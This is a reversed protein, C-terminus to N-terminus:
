RIQDKIIFSAGVHAVNMGHDRIFYYTKLKSFVINIVLTAGERVCEDECGIM